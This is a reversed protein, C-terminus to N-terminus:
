NFMAEVEVTSLPVIGVTGGLVDWKMLPEEDSGMDVCAIDVGAAYEKGAGEVFDDTTTFSDRVNYLDGVEVDELSPLDAFERSGEFRFAASMKVSLDSLDNYISVAFDRVSEIGSNTQTDLTELASKIENDSNERLTSEQSIASYMDRTAAERTQTEEDIKAELALDKEKRETEEDTIKQNLAESEATRATSESTIRSSLANDANIRNQIEEDLRLGVASGDDFATDIRANLAADANIRATEEDDLRESLDDDTNKRLARENEFAVYLGRNSVPNASNEDLTEDISFYDWVGPAPPEPEPESYPIIRGSALFGKFEAITPFDAPTINEGARFEEGTESVEITVGPAVVYRDNM